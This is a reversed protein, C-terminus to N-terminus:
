IFSFFEISKRIFSFLFKTPAPFLAITNGIALLSNYKQKIKLSKDITPKGSAPAPTVLVNSDSCFIFNSFWTIADIFAKGFKVGSLLRCTTLKKTIDGNVKHM